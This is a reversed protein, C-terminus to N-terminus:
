GMIFGFTDPDEPELMPAYLVEGLPEGELELQGMLGFLRKAGALGEDYIDSVASGGQQDPKGGISKFSVPQMVAANGQWVGTPLQSYLWGAGGSENTIRPLTTGGKIAIGVMSLAEEITGADSVRIAMGSFMAGDADRAILTRATAATGDRLASITSTGWTAAPDLSPFRQQAVLAGSEDYISVEFRSM